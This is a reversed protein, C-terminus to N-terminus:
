PTASTISWDVAQGRHGQLEFVVRGDELAHEVPRGDVRVELPGATEAPPRAELTLRGSAEPRLYGRVTKRAYEVGVLPLRLAFADMPLHPDIRYGRGTPEIGALKITAFLGWAPQHMNQGPWGFGFCNWDQDEYHAYCSDASHLIGVFHDPYATAHATLTNRTLEDFALADADPLTGDLSALAWVLPGNLAYWVGGLQVAHKIGVIGCIGGFLPVCIDDQETVDPDDRAPSQASGIKAPGKAEPPADVGTLYRRVNAVLTRAQDATPVGALIAWPQPELYMAGVGMPEDGAYGRAYWRGTWQRATDRALQEARARLTRAFEGDGRLEALEALRPYVYALQAPVLTTETAGTTDVLLDNWDGKPGASYGGHPAGAWSEQRAYARKLHEWLTAAGADGFAVKEDFFALDRTALGYESAALLLWLESDMDDQDVRECMERMWTAAKGDSLQAAASYRLIERALSPDTYVMALAHQLPDRYALQVGLAYQYNGGESIVHHGCAEEFTAGSRLLFADWQLERSLWAYGPGFDAQPVTAAWAAQSTRLPDEAKRYRAVLGPIAATHVAGYAYRLTVIEGPALRVPSRFVFLTAGTQGSSVAPAISNAAKATAAGAPQARGGAGFFVRADTEFGQVVGRLTAAFISLPDEDPGEPLQAVSLTSTAADFSPEALGRHTPSADGIGRARQAYPNVDWYEFWTAEKEEPSANRIAVDHLLLPDDGFPAYVHEDIELGDAVNVRRFYGTGFERISGSEAPRDAYLTSITEGDVRLYGYGAAYHRAKEEYLNVWQYLRDQSWLQVYGDNFPMAVVHDNGIQGQNDPAGFRMPQRARPDVRQDLTYRYVPLGSRDTRWEGFAGSGEDSAIGVRQRERSLPSPAPPDEASAMVAALSIFTPILVFM